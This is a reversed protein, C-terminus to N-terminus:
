RDPLGAPDQLHPRSHTKGREQHACVSGLVALDSRDFVMPRADNRCLFIKLFVPMLAPRFFLDTQDLSVRSPHEGPKRPRILQDEQIRRLSLIDMPHRIQYPEQRSATHEQRVIDKLVPIDYFGPKQHFAPIPRDM